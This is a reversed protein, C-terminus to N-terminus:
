SNKQSSTTPPVYKFNDGYNRPKIKRTKPQNISFELDKDQAYATAEELTKFKIRVQDLTDGSATWGMLNEPSKGAQPELELLWFDDKGRGSQMATKAPKYIRAKM